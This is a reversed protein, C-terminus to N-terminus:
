TAKTGAIPSLSSLERLVAAPGDVRYNALSEREAGVLVGIDNKQLAAFAEEDTTDDGFYATVYSKPVRKKLAVVARAKSAACPMVEALMKLRVLKLRRTESAVLQALRDSLVAAEKADALRFHLGLAVQKDEIRFGRDGPVNRALWSRVAALESACALVEPAFRAKAGPEDHELGHIGSFCLGSEIGLLRKVEALKRGTVIAISVKSRPSALRRLQRRIGKYPRAAAPDATIEALTGDYDLCLLLGPGQALTALLDRPLPAPLRAPM